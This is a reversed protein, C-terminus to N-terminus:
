CYQGAKVWRMMRPPRKWGIIIIYNNDPRYPSLQGGGTVFGTM